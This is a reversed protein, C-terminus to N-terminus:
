TIKFFNFKSKFRLYRKILKIKKDRKKEIKIYKNFNVGHEPSDILSCHIDRWGYKKFEMLQTFNEKNIWFGYIDNGFPGASNKVFSYKKKTSNVNILTKKYIYEVNNGEVLKFSNYTDLSSILKFINFHTAEVSIYNPNINHSLIRKLIIEDFKEVDIKIYYPKGYHEIIKIVDKSTIETEFFNPLLKNNPKPYQGLLYNKKHIYFKKKTDNDESLICNELFLKKQNIEREFKKKIYTCNSPNAEIAIVLDSKLLYYPINEGRAAGFDYIIKKM